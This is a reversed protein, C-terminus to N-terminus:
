AAFRKTSIKGRHKEKTKELIEIGEEKEARRIYVPIKDMTRLLATDGHAKAHNTARELRLGVSFYEEVGKRRPQSFLYLIKDGASVYFSNTGDTSKCFIVANM